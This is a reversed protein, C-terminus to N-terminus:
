RPEKPRSLRADLSCRGAGVLLLFVSGLLMAFDVRAEHAMKWFGGDHLMPIKTTWISVLMITITPIVALRTLLGLVILTACTIEFVAVFYALFEPAPLGIKLFRGPGLSDPFLFKQVVESLFVLGVM